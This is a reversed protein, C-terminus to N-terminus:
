TILNVFHQLVGIDTGSPLLPGGGLLIEDHHANLDHANPAPYQVFVSAIGAALMANYTTLAWSNPVTPDSFGHIFISPKGGAAIFANYDASAAGSQNFSANPMTLSLDIGSLLSYNSAGSLYSHVSAVLAVDGSNLASATILAQLNAIAGASSGGWFVNDPDIGLAGAHTKIYHTLVLIYIVQEKQRTVTNPQTKGFDASIGAWDRSAFFKPTKKYKGRTSNGPHFGAFVPRKSNAGCTQLYMNFYQPTGWSDPTYKTTTKAYRTCVIQTYDDPPPVVDPETTFTIMNDGYARLTLNTEVVVENQQADDWSTAFGSDRAFDSNIVEGAITVDVQLVNHETAFQNNVLLGWSNAGDWLGVGSLGSPLTVPMVQSFLKFGPAIRKISDYEPEATLGGSILNGTTMWFLYKFKDTNKLTFEAMKGIAYNGLPKDSMFNGGADENHWQSIVQKTLNPLERFFDILDQPLLTDFYTNLLALNAAQDATFVVRDPSIQEYQRGHDTDTLGTLAAIRSLSPGSNSYIRPTDWSTKILPIHAIVQQSRSVYLADQELWEQDLQVLKLKAGFKTVIQDLLTPFAAAVVASQIPYYAAIDIGAATLLTNITAADPDSLTVSGHTYYIIELGLATILPEWGPLDPLDSMVLNSGIETQIPEASGLHFVIAEPEPNASDIITITQEAFSSCGFADTYLYLVDHSGKAIANTDLIETEVDDVYYIGGAPSGGTLTYLPTVTPDIDLSEPSISVVPLAHVTVTQEQVTAGKTWTIVHAGTGASSPDFYYDDNFLIVGDGSFVGGASPPTLILAGSDACYDASLAFLANIPQDPSFFLTICSYPAGSILLQVNELDNENVKIEITLSGIGATFFGEPFYTQFITLVGNVDTTDQHKWKNGFQDTVIWWYATDATLGADITIDECEDYILSACDDCTNLLSPM